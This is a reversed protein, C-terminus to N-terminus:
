RAPNAARRNGPMRAPSSTSAPSYRFFCPIWHVEALLRERCSTFLPLPGTPLLPSLPPGKNPDAMPM